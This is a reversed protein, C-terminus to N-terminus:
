QSPNNYIEVIEMPSLKEGSSIRNVLDPRENLYIALVKKKLGFVGQTVRVMETSNKKKFLPTFEFSFNDYDIWEWHYYSLDGSAILQMFVKKGVGEISIYSIKFFKAEEQLWISEFFHEGRKYAKLDNPGYKRKFLAGEKKLKVKKLIESFTGSDRDKVRGFITDNEVTIVYGDLFDTQAFSSM